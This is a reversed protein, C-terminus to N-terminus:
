AAGGFRQRAAQRSVGLAAAIETWSVGTDHLDQAGQNIAEDLDARLAVLDALDEASGVAVRKRHARIMRGMMACFDRTEVTRRARKPQETTTV